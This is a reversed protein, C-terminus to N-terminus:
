RDGGNRTAAPTAVFHGPTPADERTIAELLVPWLVTNRHWVPDMVTLYVSRLLAAVADRHCAGFDRLVERRHPQRGGWTVGVGDERSM